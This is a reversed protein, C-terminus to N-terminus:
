TVEDEEYFDTLTDNSPTPCINFYQTIQLNEDELEHLNNLTKDLSEWDFVYDMEIIDENWSSLPLAKDKSFSKVNVSYLFLLFISKIFPITKM